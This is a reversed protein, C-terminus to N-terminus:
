ADTGVVPPMAQLCASRPAHLGNGSEAVRLADGRESCLVCVLMMSCPKRGAQRLGGSGACSSAVSCPGALAQGLNGPMPQRAWAGYWWRGGVEGHMPWQEWSNVKTFIGMQM